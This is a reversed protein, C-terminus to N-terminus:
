SSTRSNSSAKRAAWPAKPVSTSWPKSSFHEMAKFLLIPSPVLVLAQALQCLVPHVKQPDREGWSPVAQGPLCSLGQCIEKLSHARALHCFLIAVFQAWCSFGKTRVEAGHKKVLDAFKTRPFDHLLQRFLSAVRVMATGERSRPITPKQCRWVVVRPHPCRAEIM